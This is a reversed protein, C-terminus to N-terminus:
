LSCNCSFSSYILANSFAISSCSLSHSWSSSRACVSMSSFDSNIARKSILSFSNCCCSRSRLCCNISALSKIFSVFLRFFESTSSCFFTFSISTAAFIFSTLVCRLILWNCFSRSTTSTSSADRLVIASSDNTSPFSLSASIVRSWSSILCASNLTCTKFPSNFTAEGIRDLRDSELTASSNFIEIVSRSTSNLKALFCAFSANSALSKICSFYLNSCDLIFIRCESPLMSCCLPREVCSFSWRWSSTSLRSSFNNSKFCSLSWNLFSIPWNSCFNNSALDLDRLIATFDSTSIAWIRDVSFVALAEACFNSTCTFFSSSWSLWILALWLSSLISLFRISFARRLSNIMNRLSSEEESLVIFWAILTSWARNFKFTAIFWRDLVIPSIPEALFLILLSEILFSPFSTSCTLILIVLTSADTSSFLTSTSLARWPSSSEIM